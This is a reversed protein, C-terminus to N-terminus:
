EKTLTVALCASHGAWCTSVSTRAVHVTKATTKIYSNGQMNGFPGLYLTDGKRWCGANVFGILVLGVGPVTVTDEVLFEFPRDVKNSHLRRKPLHCLLAQLVDLGEGTVCSTTVVPALCHMKDVVTTVDTLNKVSYPRQVALRRLAEWVDCQTTALVHSPCSDAKTLVIVMPINLAACLSLHKLTMHTPPQAASVLVLAYDAMGKSLGGITTGLYKEHGALDMLSVMRRTAQQALRCDNRDGRVSHLARNQADFGLLHTSVTSTRGSEVEHKHTAVKSRNSGKGDDLAGTVLTGILTSKGSDVNGVVAVRLHGDSMTKLISEEVDSSPTAATTNYTMTETESKKTELKQESHPIQTEHKNNAKYTQLAAYCSNLRADL